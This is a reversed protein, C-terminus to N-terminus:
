DWRFRRAALAARSILSFREADPIAGVVAGLLDLVGLLEQCEGAAADFARLLPARVDSSLAAVVSPLRAFLAAAPGPATEAARRCLSFLLAREDRALSAFGPPLGQYPAHLIERGTQLRLGLDTWDAIEGATLVPIVHEGSAFYTGALFEGRWGSAAALRIGSRVWAELRAEGDKGLRHLSRGSSELCSVALRRSLKQVEACLDIWRELLHRAAFLHIPELRFYTVAAERSDLRKGAIELGLTAWAAFERRGMAARARAAQLGYAQAVTLNLEALRDGFALVDRQHDPPLRRLTALAEVGGEARALHASGLWRSSTM